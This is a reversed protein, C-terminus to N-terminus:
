RDYKKGQLMIENLMTSGGNGYFEEMFLGIFDYEDNAINIYPYMYQVFQMFKYIYDIKLNSFFRNFDDQVHTHNFTSMYRECLIIFYLISFIIIPPILNKGSFYRINKCWTTYHYVQGYYYYRDIYDKINQIIIDMYNYRFRLKSLFSRPTIICPSAYSLPNDTNFQFPSVFIDKLGENLITMDIYKIFLLEIRQKLVSLLIQEDM